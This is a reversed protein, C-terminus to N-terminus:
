HSFSSAVSNTMKIFGMKNDGIFLIGESKEASCATVIHDNETKWKNRHRTICHPDQVPVGCLVTLVSFWKYLPPRFPIHKKCKGMVASIFNPSVTKKEVSTKLEQVFFFTDCDCLGVCALFGVTGLPMKGLVHYFIQAHIVPFIQVQFSM